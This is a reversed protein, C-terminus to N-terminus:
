QPESPSESASRGGELAARRRAATRRMRPRRVPATPEPFSARQGDSFLAPRAFDPVSSHMLPSNRYRGILQSLGQLGESWQLGAPREAGETWGTYGLFHAVFRLASETTVLNVFAYEFSIRTTIDAPLYIFDYEGPFGERDFLEELDTRLMGPPINRLMLTTRGQADASVDTSVAPGPGAAPALTTPPPAPEAVAEGGQKEEAISTATATVVGEGVSTATATATVLGSRDSSSSTQVLSMVDTQEETIDSPAQDEFLATLARRTPEELTASRLSKVPTGIAGYLDSAASNRRSSLAATTPECSSAARPSSSTGPRYHPREGEAVNRKSDRSTSPKRKPEVNAFSSSQRRKGGSPISQVATEHIRQVEESLSRFLDEAEGTEEGAAGETREAEAEAEAPESREEAEGDEGQGGHVSETSPPPGALGEELSFSSLVPSSRSRRHSRWAPAGEGVSLFTNKVVLRWSEEGADRDGEDLSM